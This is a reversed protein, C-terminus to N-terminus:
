DGYSRIQWRDADPPPWDRRKKKAQTKRPKAKSASKPTDNDLWPLVEGSGKKSSPTASGKRLVLKKRELIKAARADYAPLTAASQAAVLHVVKFGNDRLKELLRPM